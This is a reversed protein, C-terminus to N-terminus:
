AAERHEAERWGPVAVPNSRYHAAIKKVADIVDKTDEATMAASLPLSVTTDGIAEAVPFDGRGTGHHERHWRHLHLPVFHIGSGINEAGLARIFQMRDCGFDEAEIRLTYLHRAHRTQGHDRVQPTTVGDLGAFAADYARWIDQRVLLNAELRALQHLGMSAQVDTMNYKWGPELTEYPLFGGPSYRKWADKDLGHLRLAKIRDFAANESMTLMGGEATTMNKTAYFSFATYDSISGVKRGEYWTESAHAADEIVVLGHRKAIAQIANMDCPWGCMHVPLIAKTRPTIAREIRSVDINQTREEVDVFVPKAGVHAIVNATATFTLPTTIVEDGPGVGAGILALHLAATASNMSLAHPARTYAAFDEEFRISKPGYGIWGSRLTDVVEAIEEEGILPRGFVLFDPRVPRGGELALTRM